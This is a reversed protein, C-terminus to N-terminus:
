SKWCNRIVLAEGDAAFTLRARACSAESAARLLLAADPGDEAALSELARTALDM